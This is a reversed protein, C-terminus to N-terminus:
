RADAEKNSDSTYGVHSRYGSDTSFTGIQFECVGSVRTKLTSFGM